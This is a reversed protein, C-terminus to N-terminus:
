EEGESKYEEESPINPRDDNLASLYQAQIRQIEDVNEFTTDRLISRKPQGKDGLEALAGYWTDHKMGIQLDNEKKRVWYQTSNYLRKSKKLGPLVKLKEIMRKRLFKATDRLAAKTLQAISYEVAEVNSQFQVGGKNIKMKANPLALILVGM